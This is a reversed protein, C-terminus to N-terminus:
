SRTLGKREGRLASTAASSGDMGKSSLASPMRRSRSGNATLGATCAPGAVEPRRRAQPVCRRPGPRENMMRTRGFRYFWPTRPGGFRHLSGRRPIGDRGGHSSRRAASGAFRGSPEGGRLRLLHRHCRYRGLRGDHPNADRHGRHEHNGSHLAADERCPEGGQDVTEADRGDVETDHQEDPRQARRGRRQGDAADNGSEATGRHQPEGRRRAGQGKGDNGHRGVEPCQEGRYRDETRREPNELYGHVALAGDQFPDVAPRQQAAHMGRPADTSDGTPRQRGPETVEADSVAPADARHRQARQGGGHQEATTQEPEFRDLPGRARGTPTAPGGRRDAHQGSGREAGEYDLAADGVPASQEQPVVESRGM